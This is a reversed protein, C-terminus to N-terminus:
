RGPELTTLRQARVGEVWAISQSNHGVMLADTFAMVANALAESAQLCVLSQVVAASCSKPGRCPQACMATIVVDTHLPRPWSQHLIEALHLICPLYATAWYWAM